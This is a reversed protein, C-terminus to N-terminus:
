KTEFLIKLFEDRTEQVQKLLAQVPTRDQTAFSNTYDKLRREVHNLVLDCHKIDHRHEEASARAKTLVDRAEEIAKASDEFRQATYLDGASDVLARVLEIDAKAEGKSGAHTRAHERARAVPDQPKDDVAAAAACMCLTCCLLLGIVVRSM